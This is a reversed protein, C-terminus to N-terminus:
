AGEVSADADAATMGQPSVDDDVAQDVDDPRAAGASDGNSATGADVVNVDSEVGNQGDRDVGIGVDTDTADVPDEPATASLDVQATDEEPHGEDGTAHGDSDETGMDNLLCCRISM